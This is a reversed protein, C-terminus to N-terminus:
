YTATGSAATAAPSMRFFPQPAGPPQAHHVPPLPNAVAHTPVEDVAPLQALRPMTDEVEAVDEIPQLDSPVLDDGIVQLLKSICLKNMSTKYNHAEHRLAKHLSEPLRVTIVRIPEDPLIQGRKRERLKALMQHIESFEDTKEFQNREEFTPFLKDIIGEVGLVERYFTVWDPQRHFKESALRRAHQIREEHTPQQAVDMM